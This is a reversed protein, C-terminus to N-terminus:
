GIEGGFDVGPEQKTARLSRRPIRNSSLHKALDEFLDNNVPEGM